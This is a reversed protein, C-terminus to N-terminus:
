RYAQKLAGWSAGEVAVPARRHYLEEITPTIYTLTYLVLDQQYGGAVFWAEGGSDIVLRELFWGWPHMYHEVRYPSEQILVCDRFFRYLGDPTFRARRM